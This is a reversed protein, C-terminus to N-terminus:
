PSRRLRAELRLAARFCREAEEINGQAQLIVGLNNRAEALDPVLELARRYNNTASEDDGERQHIVGLFFFAEGCPPNRRATQLFAERARAVDGAHLWGCAMKLDQWSRRRATEDVPADLVCGADSVPM